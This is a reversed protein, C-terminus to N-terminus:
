AVLILIRAGPKRVMMAMEHVIGRLVQPETEFLYKDLYYRSRKGSRLVFNGELYAAAM